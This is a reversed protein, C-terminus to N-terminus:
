NSTKTFGNPTSVTGFDYFGQEADIIIAAGHGDATLSGGPLLVVDGDDSRLMIKDGATVSGGIVVGNDTGPAGSNGSEGTISVDGHGSTTISGGTMAIGSDSGFDAGQNTGTVRIHGDVASIVPPGFGFDLMLVGANNGFAGNSTGSIEINGNGGTSIVGGGIGVGFNGAGTANAGVTGTIAINGTGALIYGLNAVGIQGLGLPSIEAGPGNAGSTGTLTINGNGTNAIEGENTIGFNDPGASAGGIGTITVPGGGGAILGGIFVGDNGFSSGSAGGGTGVITIPGTGTAEVAGGNVYVGYNEGASTNGGTGTISISGGATIVNAIEVGYPGPASVGGAGNITVDGTAQIPASVTVDGGAVLYVRGGKSQTSTARIIGNGGVALAYVNGGAANLQAQAAAITGGNNTVDGSGSNVEIQLGSDSPQLLVNDGAALNAGGNAASIQGENTVSKGILTVNGNNSTITGENDVTGSSTGSATMPAGNMFDKNSIDRTSAVFDSGTVVKGGPAVVIGAQNVLYVSGTGNLTGMINSPNGTTVVRNLTAGSGNNIQVTGGSGISFTQWNIVARNTTQNITTTSANQSIGGSGAAFQGGTPLVTVAHAADLSAVTSLLASALLWLRRSGITRRGALGIQDYNM